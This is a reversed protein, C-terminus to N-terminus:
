AFERLADAEAMPFFDGGSAVGFMRRSAVDREEGL